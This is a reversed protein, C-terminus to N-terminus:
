AHVSCGLQLITRTDNEHTHSRRRLKTGVIFVIMSHAHTRARSSFEVGIRVTKKTAAAASTQYHYIHACMQKCTLISAILSHLKLACLFLKSIKRAIKKNEWPLTSKEFLFNREAKRLNLSRSLFGVYLRFHQTTSLSCLELIIWIGILIFKSFKGHGQLWHWPRFISLIVFILEIFRSVLCICDSTKLRQKQKSGNLTIKITGFREHM